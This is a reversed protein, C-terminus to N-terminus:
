SPEVEVRRDVEVWRDDRTEVRVTLLWEGAVPFDLKEARYRGAGRGRATDQLLLVGERRGLIVVRDGNRPSWDLEAVAVEVGATELTPPDPTVRVRVELERDGRRADPGCGAVLPLLALLATLVLRM